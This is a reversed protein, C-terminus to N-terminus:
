TVCIHVKWFLDFNFQPLISKITIRQLKQVYWINMHKHICTRIQLEQMKVANIYRMQTLGTRIQIVCQKFETSINNEPKIM